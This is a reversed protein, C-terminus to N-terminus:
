KVTSCALSCGPMSTCYWLRHKHARMGVKSKQVGKQTSNRKSYTSQLRYIESALTSVCAHMGVLKMHKPMGAHNLRMQEQMREWM